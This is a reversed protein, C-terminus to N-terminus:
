YVFLVLATVRILNTVSGFNEPKIVNELSVEEEKGEICTTVLSPVAPKPSKLECLEERAQVSAPQIPWYESDKSLFEPGHLWLNCEKLETAKIAQSAIDAPNEATPCYRWQEPPSNRRIETVRNEVFQKYEKDTNTIWWLSIMSDTWNFVNDIRMGELAQSVSKLLRSATLNSLLELHPITQKALPAVRTKSSM